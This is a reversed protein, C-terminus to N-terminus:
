ARVPEEDWRITSIDNEKVVTLTSDVQDRIDSRHTIVFARKKHVRVFDNLIAVANAAGRNCIGSDLLEDVALLNIPNNMAEYLRMFSLSIAVVLRMREGKSLNGNSYEGNLHEVHLEMETDFRVRHPLELDKLFGAIMSNLKPLWRAILSKRVFSEPKTALEILLQLHELISKAEALRTREARIDVLANKELSTIQETYPDPNQIPSLNAKAELAIEALRNSETNQEVWEQALTIANKRAESLRQAQDYAESATTFKDVLDLLTPESEMQASLNENIQELKTTFETEIQAQEQMAVSRKGRLQELRAEAASLATNNAVLTEYLSGHEETTQTLEASLRDHEQQRHEETTAQGCSPCVSETLKEIMSELASITGTMKSIRDMGENQARKDRPVTGTLSSLDNREDETLEIALMKADRAAILGRRTEEANKEMQSVLREIEAELLDRRGALRELEDEEPPLGRVYELHNGMRIAEPLSQVFANREFEGYLAKGQHILEGLRLEAQRLRAEYPKYYDAVKARLGDIQAQVRDNAAQTAVLGSELATIETKKTDRDKKLFKAIETLRRFGFLSEIVNRRKDATLRMFPVTESTLGILYTYLTMDFGVSEEIQSQTASKSQTHDFVYVVKGNIKERVRFDRPDDYPKRFWLLRGPNEGREILYRFPGRSYEVEVGMPQGKRALKHVLGKLTIDPRTTEGFLAYPVADILFGSKGTGNRSDEGGTDYNTGIVATLMADSLDIEVVDPGFSLYNWVRLKHFRLEDSFSEVMGPIYALGAEPDLGKPIM